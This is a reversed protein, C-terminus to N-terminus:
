EREPHRKQVLPQISVMCLLYIGATTLLCASVIARVLLAGEPRAASLRVNSVPLISIAVSSHNRATLSSILFNFSRELQHTRLQEVSVLM